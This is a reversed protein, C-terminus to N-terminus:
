GVRLAPEDLQLGAAWIKAAEDEHEGSLPVSFSMQMIQKVAVAGGPKVALPEDFGRQSLQGDFDVRPERRVDELVDVPLPPPIFRMQWRWSRGGTM